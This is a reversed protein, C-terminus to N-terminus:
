GNPTLALAWRLTGGWSLSVTPLRRKKAEIRGM